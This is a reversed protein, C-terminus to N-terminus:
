KAKRIESRPVYVPEGRRDKRGSPDPVFDSGGRGGGGESSSKRSVEQGKENFTVMVAQGREDVQLRKYCKECLVENKKEEPKKFSELIYEGYVSLSTDITLGKGLGTLATETAGVTGISVAGTYVGIGGTALSIGGGILGSEAARLYSVEGTSLKQYTVSVTFGVVFGRIFSQLLYAGVLFNGSDDKFKYPNNRAYTYPNLLQPDYYSIQREKEYKTFDYFIRDPTTARNAWEPKMRRSMFDYENNINDFEKGTFSYRSNKVPVIQEGFPSFFSNEVINGSADTILSVSGLHDNHIAQKNGNADRQAVLIDDQYIYNEYFTGSENKIKITNKNLYKITTRLTQNNWYIKKIFVREEIPHWIFEETINGSSTNGQKIRILHNFGDYERYFNDGTVLNGVADYQLNLEQAFIIPLSVILYVLISVTIKIYSNLKM